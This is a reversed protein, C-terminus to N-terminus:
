KGPSALAFYAGQPDAAQIIWQGGPVETPGHIVKGGGAEIRAAAETVSPVNMYYGWFSRPIMPPKTMMGGAADGGGTRFLQYKGMAGMDHVEAKTWGFLKEYFPWVAEWDEAYLERWGCTGPTGAALPPLADAILPKAILFPAGQPDSVVAMRIIGPVEFPERHAGGGEAKVRNYMADVDDVHIYGMWAPKAGNRAAEEPVPMLGAVGRGGINFTSYDTGPANTPQVSWGVVDGYFGAAAGTDTTMVDYWFFENAMARERNAAALRIM